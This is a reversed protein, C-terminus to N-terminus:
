VLIEGHNGQHNLPLSDVQWCLLCLNLRQDLLIRRARSFSLGHEVVISGSGELEHDVIIISAKAILLGQAVVLSYGKSEAVLSFGTCCCPGACDFNVSKLFTKM